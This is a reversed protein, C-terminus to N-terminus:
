DGNLASYVLLQHETILQEGAQVGDRLYTKDGVTKLINAERILMNCKDKYIVVYNKGNDFVLASSPITIAKANETNLVTVNTFMEPKLLLQENQIRIRVKMAKNTPDLVESIKDIKGSFKKDPYAITKIQAVYGEKIRAIDTEFVNAMVWVERLDSITFLNDANDPRVQTGASIKKEVVYGSIPAKILIEGNAKTNQNGYVKLLEQNKAYINRAKEYEDKSTLYERESNMGSKWLSESSEMNKRAIELDTKTVAVDNYGSMIESSKMVALIQGQKVYDGLSVKVDLVQGSSLPMVRVVKDQNFTVEGSLNLADAINEVDATEIKIMKALSDSVCFKEPAKETNAENKNGDEKNKCANIGTLFLALFLLSCFKISVKM